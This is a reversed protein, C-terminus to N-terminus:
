DIKATTLGSFNFPMLNYILQVVYAAYCGQHLPRNLSRPPSAFTIQRRQGPVNAPEADLGQVRRELNGTQGFAGLHHTTSATTPTKNTTTLAGLLNTTLATTLPSRDAGYRGPPSRHPSTSLRDTRAGALM